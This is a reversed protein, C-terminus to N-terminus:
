LVSFYENFSEADGGYMQGRCISFRRKNSCHITDKKGNVMKVLIEDEEFYAINCKQCVYYHYFSVDKLKQKEYTTDAEREANTKKRIKKSM